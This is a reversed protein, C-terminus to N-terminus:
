ATGDIPAPGVTTGEVYRVPLVIRHEPPRENDDILRNLLDVGREIMGAYDLEMTSLAPYQEQAILHWGWSTVSLDRPVSLGLEAAALIVARAVVLDQCVFVTPRDKRRLLDRAWRASEAAAVGIGQVESLGFVFVRDAAIGLKQTSEKWGSFGEHHMYYRQPGCAYAMRRHGLAHLRKVTEVVGQRSDALVCYRGPEDISVWPYDPYESSLLSRLPNGVDGILVSGDVLGSTVQYPTQTPTADQAHSHFEIVYRLRRKMCADVLSGLLPGTFDRSFASVADSAAVLGGIQGARKSRLLQAAARPHYNMQNAIDRIHAIRAESIEASGRLAMSVTAQSVGAALAIDKATVRSNSKSVRM